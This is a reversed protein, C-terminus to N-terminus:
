IPSSRDKVPAKRLLPAGNHNEMQVTFEEVAFFSVQKRFADAVAEVESPREASLHPADGSSNGALFYRVSSAPRERRAPKRSIKRTAKPAASSTTEENLSPGNLAVNTKKEVTQEVAAM